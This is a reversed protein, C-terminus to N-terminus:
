GPDPRRALADLIRCFRRKGALWKRSRSHPYLRKLQSKFDFPSLDFLTVKFFTWLAMGVRPDIKM